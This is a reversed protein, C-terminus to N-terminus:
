FIKLLQNLSSIENISNDEFKLSKRNLFIAKISANKAGIIDADFDDGVM